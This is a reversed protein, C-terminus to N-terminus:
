SPVEGNKQAHHKQRKQHKAKLYAGSLCAGEEQEQWRARSPMEAEVQHGVCNLAM